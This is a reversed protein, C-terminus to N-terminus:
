QCDGTLYHNNVWGTGDVYAVFAWGSTNAILVHVKQGNVLWGTVTFRTGPGSRVNLAFTVVCNVSPNTASVSPADQVTRTVQPHPTLTPAPIKSPISCACLLFILALLAFRKNM